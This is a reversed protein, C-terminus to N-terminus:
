ENILGTACCLILINIRIRKKNTTEQKETNYGVIVVVFIVIYAVMSNCMVTSLGKLPRLSMLSMYPLDGYIYIVYGM